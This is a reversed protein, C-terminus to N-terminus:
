CVFLGIRVNSHSHMGNNVPSGSRAYSCLAPNMGGNTSQQTTPSGYSPPGPYMTQTQHNNMGNVQYCGNNFDPGPISPSHIYQNQKRASGTM